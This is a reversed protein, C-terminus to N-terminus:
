GIRFIVKENYVGTIGGDESVKFAIGYKSLERAAAMRGGEESGPSIKLIAGVSRVSGLKDVVMAGDMSLLEARLKQSLQAFSYTSPTSLKNVNYHILQRIIAHKTVMADFKSKEVKGVFDDGSDIEETILCNRLMDNLQSDYQKFDVVSICAGTHAFSADLISLYISKSIKEVFTIYRKSSRKKEFAMLSDMCPRFFASYGYTLWQGERKAYVLEGGKVALIDGNSLAILGVKQDYCQKSFNEFRAPVLSFRNKKVAGAKQNTKSNTTPLAVHQIIQGNSNLIIASFVGDTFSASYKSELFSIYNQKVADNEKDDLDVIIGFPVKRGEYTKQAWKELAYIVQALLSSDQMPGALITCIGLTVSTQCLADMYFSCRADEPIHLKNISSLILDLVHRVTKLHTTNCSLQSVYYYDPKNQRPSFYIYASGDKSITQVTKDSLGYAFGVESASEIIGERAIPMLPLVYQEIIHQFLARTMNM